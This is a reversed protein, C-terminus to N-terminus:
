WSGDEAYQVLTMAQFPPNVVPAGPHLDDTASVTLFALPKDDNTTGLALGSGPGPGDITNAWAFTLDSDLKMVFANGFFGGSTRTDTGPGPDFDVTNTYNGTAYVSGDSTLSIQACDDFGTGGWTATKIWSGTGSFQSIFCDSFGASTRSDSGAGPDFDVTSYWRGSSVINGSPQVDVDFVVQPSAGGWARGWRYAGAPSLRAIYADNPGGPTYPDTGGTPDLDVTTGSVVGGVVVDDDDAIAVGWATDNADNDWVRSWAYTGDSEFRSLYGAYNDGSGFFNTGATPDLDILEGYLDGVVYLDDSSDVAVKAGHAWGDGVGYAEIWDFAGSSTYKAVMARQAIGPLITTGPGPDWDINTSEFYGTIILAGTSDMAAGVPNEIGDGGLRYYRIFRGDKDYWALAIDSNGLDPHWEVCPGPDADIGDDFESIVMAITGDPAVTVEYPATFTGPYHLAFGKYGTVVIPIINYSILPLRRTDSPALTNPDVGAHILPEATATSEPDTATVLGYYTGAPVLAPSPIHTKYLYEDGPLGTGSELTFDLVAPGLQTLDLKLVPAGIAGPVVTDVDTELALDDSAAATAGNDWDRVRAYVDIGEGDSGLVPGDCTQCRGADFAAHPLRYAFQLADVPEVPFRHAKDGVGRPDTYKVLIALDVTVPGAVVKARPIALETVVTQGGHLYDFGTWNDGSVGANGQQWGGSAADYNGSPAGGNSIGVRNDRAEDALLLYPFLNNTYGTRYLLDGTAAYGDPNRVLTPDATLSQSAFTTHVADALILLKGTYGLDARNKATIPQTFDPAPFPHRHTLGILLDGNVDFHVSSARLLSSNVFQSIDVDYYRAQTGVTAAREPLYTCTAQLTSPDATLQWFGILQEDVALSATAQAIGPSSTVPLNPPADGCGALLLIVALGSILRM